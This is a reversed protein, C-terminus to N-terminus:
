KKYFHINEDSKEDHIYISYLRSKGSGSVQKDTVVGSYTLVQERNDLAINLGFLLVLSATINIPYIIFITFLIQKFLTFKTSVVPKKYSLYSFIITVLAVPLLLYLTYTVIRNGDNGILGPEFFLIIPLCSSYIIAKIINLIKFKM